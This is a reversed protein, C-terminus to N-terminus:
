VERALVQVDSRKAESMLKPSENHLRPKDRNWLEPFKSRSSKLM